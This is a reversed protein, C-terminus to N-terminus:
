FLWLVSIFDFVNVKEFHHGIYQNENQSSVTVHGFNSFGSGWLIKEIFSPEYLFFM